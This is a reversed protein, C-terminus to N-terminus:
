EALSQRTGGIAEILAQIIQELRSDLVGQSKQLKAETMANGIGALFGSRAERRQAEVLMQQQPAGGVLQGLQQQASIQSAGMINAM